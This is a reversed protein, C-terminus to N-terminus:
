NLPYEIDITEDDLIIQQGISTKTNILVPARLNATFRKRQNDAKLIIYTQLHKDAAIGLKVLERTPITFGTEVSILQCDIILLTIEPYEVSQLYKFPPYEELDVM